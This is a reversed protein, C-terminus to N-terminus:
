FNAGKWGGDLKRHLQLHIDSAPIGAESTLIDCIARTMREYDKASASGFLSVSVYAGSELKRGAFYLTEDAFGVMLYRETKHLLAIAEGLKSKVSEKQADTLCNATKCEIFPM